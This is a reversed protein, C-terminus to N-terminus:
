FFINLKFGTTNSCLTYQLNMRKCHRQTVQVLTRISVDPMKTGGGGEGVWSFQFFFHDSGYLPPPPSPHYTPLRIAFPKRITFVFMVVCYVVCRIQALM